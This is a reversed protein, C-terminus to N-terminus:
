FKPFDPDEFDAGKKRHSSGIILFDIGSCFFSGCNTNKKGHGPQTYAYYCAVRNNIDGVFIEHSYTKKSTTFAQFPVASRAIEIHFASSLFIFLFDVETEPLVFFLV